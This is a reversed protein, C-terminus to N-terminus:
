RSKGFISLIKIFLYIIDIYLNLAALVYDDIQYKKGMQGLVLQTDYILYLSYLCVGLVEYLIVMYYSWWFICFIGAFILILCFSFLFFGCYTFDTKTKAAYATLGVTAATTLGLAMVVSQTTFAACFLMCYYSMCVTFILLLIYNVPVTRALTRSCSLMIAIIIIAVFSALLITYQYGATMYFFERVGEFFSLSVFGLTIILQVTLIGYVKMVFGRRAMFDFDFPASAPASEPKPYDQPVPSPVPAYQQANPDQVVYPQQVPPPVIPQPVPAVYPQQVPAVYPQQQAAPDVFPQGYAGAGSQYAPDQPYPQYNTAM